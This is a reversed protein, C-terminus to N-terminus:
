CFGNTFGNTCGLQHYALSLWCVDIIGKLLIYNSQCTSILEIGHISYKVVFISYKVVLILYKVGLNFKLTMVM